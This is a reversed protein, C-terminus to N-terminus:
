SEDLPSLMDVPFDCYTCECARYKGLDTACWSTPFKVSM